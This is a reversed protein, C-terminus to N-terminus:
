WLLRNADRIMAGTSVEGFHAIESVPRPWLEVIVEANAANSILTRQSRM